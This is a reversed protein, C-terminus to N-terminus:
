RKLKNFQNSMRKQQLDMQHDTVSIQNNPDSFWRIGKNYVGHMTAYYWKKDEVSLEDENKKLDSIKDATWEMQKLIEKNTDLLPSGNKRLSNVTQQQTKMLEYFNNISSGSFLYRDYEQYIPNYARGTPITDGKAYAIGKATWDIVVSTTRGLQGRVFHDIKKPSWGLGAGIEKAFESTYKDYQDEPLYKDM